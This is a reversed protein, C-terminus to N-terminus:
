ISEVCAVILRETGTRTNLHGTDSRIYYYDTLTEQESTYYQGVGFGAAAYRSWNGWESWLAGSRTGRTTYTNPGLYNGGLVGNRALSRPSSCYNNSEQWTMLTNGNHTFWRNITFDKFYIIGKDTKSRATVRVTKNAASPKATFKVVGSADVSVWSPQSTSWDYQSNNNADGEVQITFEAHTFGSEPFTSSLTYTHPNVHTNLTTSVPFPAPTAAIVTNASLTRVPWSEDPNLRLGKAAAAVPDSIAKIENKIKFGVDGSQLTYSCPRGAAMMREKHTNPDVRYWVCYEGAEVPDGDVDTITGGTRSIVEGM